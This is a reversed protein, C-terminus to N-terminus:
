WLHKGDLLKNKIENSCVAFNFGKQLAYGGFEGHKNLALFGIQMEKINKPSKAIREVAIRCAEEPSHGSRMMEVVTHAGSIRIVEEGTGTATAAGVENDVFLGAGIIPSDGVRGHMKFGLGSTTCAGSLNGSADLALMGITDHNQFNVVPKYESTTLWEKWKIDAEPSLGMKEIKFGNDVAFKQAGEGALIIHPTKEM